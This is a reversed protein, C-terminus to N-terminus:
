NFPSWGRDVPPVKMSYCHTPKLRTLARAKAFASDVARRAVDDITSSTSSAAAQMASIDGVFDTSVSMGAMQFSASAAPASVYRPAYGQSSTPRSARTTQSAIDASGSWWDTAADTVVPAQASVLEGFSQAAVSPIAVFATISIAVAFLISKMARGRRLGAGM